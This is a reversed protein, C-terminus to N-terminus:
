RNRGRAPHPGVQPGLWAVHGSPGIHVNDSRTGNDIQSTVARARSRRRSWGSARRAHEHLGHGGVNLQYTRDLVLGCDEFLRALIRHVITAGVQSKIDDIVIPV